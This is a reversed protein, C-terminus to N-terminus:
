GTSGGVAFLSFIFCRSALLLFCPIGGLGTGEVQAGVAPGRVREGEDIGVTAGEFAASVAEGVAPVAVGVACGEAMGLM